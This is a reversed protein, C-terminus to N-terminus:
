QSIPVDDMPTFHPIVVSIKQVDDPPAPFKAWLNKRSKPAIDKINSSCVCTDETDRVVFYKKKGAADVLTVGGITNFDKVSRDQDGFNYNFVVPQESDNVIAIKLMLSNGGRKLEHVEVKTGSTEGDAVAIAAVAPPAAVPSAASAPTLENASSEAPPSSAVGGKPEEEKRACNVCLVAALILTFSVVYKSRTDLM